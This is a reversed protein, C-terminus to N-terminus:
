HLAMLQGRYTNTLVASMAPCIVECNVLTVRRNLRNFVNTADVLIMAETDDNDLITRMAHVAVECGAEQGACLQIFGVADQLDQRMVRMIAKGIIRRVVEGVGVPRVGPCKDLAVLQCATYAMLGSPNVYTTCIRRAIAALASCLDNSKQGFATCLMRWMMATVGSPGASGTTLLASKRVAEPTINDFIIPDFSDGPTESVIVDANVPEPDPHKDELVDRVTRGSGDNVAEDLRLPGSETLHQLAAKVRGEMMMQAFKCAEKAEGRRASLSTKLSKQIAKGERLLEPIAYDCCDCFGFALM